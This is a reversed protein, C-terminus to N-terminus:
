LINGHMVGPKNSFKFGLNFFSIESQYSFGGREGFNFSRKLVFNSGNKKDERNQFKHSEM